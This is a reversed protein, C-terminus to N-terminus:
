HPGAGGGDSNVEESPGRCASSSGPGTGLTRKGSNHTKSSLEPKTTPRSLTRRRSDGPRNGRQEGGRRELATGEALGSSCLVHVAAPPRPCRCMYSEPFRGQAETQGPSAEGATVPPFGSDGKELVVPDQGAQQKELETLVHSCVSARRGLGVTQPFHCAPTNPHLPWPWPWTPQSSEQPRQTCGCQTEAAAGAGRTTAAAATVACGRLGQRGSGPLSGPM